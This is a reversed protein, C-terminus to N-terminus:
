DGGGITTFHEEDTEPTIENKETVFNGTKDFKLHHYIGNHDVDIVYHPNNDDGAKVIGFVVDDKFHQDLYTKIAAPIENMSITESTYKISNSMIDEKTKM